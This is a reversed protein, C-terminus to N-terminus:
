GDVWALDSTGAASLFADAGLSATINVKGQARVRERPSRLSAGPCFWAPLSLELSGSALAM